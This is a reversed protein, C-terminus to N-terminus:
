CTGGSMVSVNANDSIEGDFVKVPDEAAEVRGERMAQTLEIYDFREPIRNQRGLYIWYGYQRGTSIWLVRYLQGDMNLVENVFLNHEM